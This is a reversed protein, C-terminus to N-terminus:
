WATQVARSHTRGLCSSRRIRRSVLFVLGLAHLVLGRLPHQPIANLLVRAREFAQKAELSSVGLLQAAAVGRMASLALESADRLSGAPCRPLMGLAHGALNMAERPAFHRLANEAAQAYHRLAVLPEHGLEFHTALEASSVAAGAARGRELSAAVRRHLQARALAGIRQYFVQRYLAHRFAYRADLSGDPLREVDMGSLWQGRRALEDYHASISAIDRELASAVTGPRFEAGCVSAAELLARPEPSLQAIQKEIVGALSEPVQLSAIAESQPGGAESRLVGRAALEGTVNVVFLPLGDTRAHLARVFSETVNAEPFREGIYDAVEQESFPDLVFEECLDHLRLEHRLTKLPHEEAIVEALRFSSLWLVRAPGRRRVVHDMLRITAHDSWHLDETVLVLARHQTYRELLEGFERLMREQGVGALERRLSEREAESSLWPLQILWTPAVARLLAPLTADSRCLVGLADLVPLYPEGAGHQEVCQGHVCLAPRIEAAFNDILTTKGVGAEGAVWCMQRRGALANNWSAHLRELAPRRGILTPGQPRANDRAPPASATAHSNRIAGTRVAGIFRYGRRSVTEIYSPRRPDDSLAARLESITTKLVSDSVHQHGWVTDLLANKTLLHGPRRALACLVAFAKPALLVPRGERTLRADQEDLEFAGFRMYFSEPTDM